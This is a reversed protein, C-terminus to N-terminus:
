NCWDIISKVGINKPHDNYFGHKFKTQHVFLAFNKYFRKGCINCRWPKDNCHTMGHKMLNNYSKFTRGCHKFQCKYDGDDNYESVGDQKNKENTADVGNYRAKPPESTKSM